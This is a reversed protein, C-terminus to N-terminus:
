IYDATGVFVWGPLNNWLRVYWDRKYVGSVRANTQLDSVMIAVM